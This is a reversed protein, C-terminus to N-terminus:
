GLLHNESLLIAENIKTECVSSPLTVHICSDSQMEVIYAPNGQPVRTGHFCVEAFFVSVADQCEPINGEQSATAKDHRESHFFVQLSKRLLLPPTTATNV